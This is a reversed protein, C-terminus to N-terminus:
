MQYVMCVMDNHNLITQMQFRTAEERTKFHKEDVIQSELLGIKIVIAKFFTVTEMDIIVM